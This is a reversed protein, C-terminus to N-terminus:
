YKECYMSVGIDPLGGNFSKSELYCWVALGKEMLFYPLFSNSQPIKGIVTGDARSVMLPPNSFSFSEDRALFLKENVSLSQYLEGTSVWVFAGELLLIDIFVGEKRPKKRAFYEKVDDIRTKIQNINIPYDIDAKTKIRGM